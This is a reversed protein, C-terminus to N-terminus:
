PTQAIVAKRRRRRRRVGQAHGATRSQDKASAEKGEPMVPQEEIFREWWRFLDPEKGGTEATFRLYALAEPFSARAMFSHPNKGPTKRFRSQLLLIERIQIGVKNPILVTPALRGLFGALAMDLAQQRPLGNGCHQEGMEELYEGFILSLLFHPSVKEGKGVLSDIWDLAQSIRTHPFGDSERDLWLSFDPFLAQFLGCRRMTQYCKEGEGSLFLKLVEEYLRPPTARTITHGLEVIANWTADDLNFGLVSAFRIARLMRVPDETFREAPNGITRIASHRIDRVGGTYDIITFTGIDYFLANVTFDRRSANQEPTGFINDRLLVGEESKLHRPSRTPSKVQARESEPDGPHLTEPATEDDHEARFTAVEIIEDNFHLHALRFRRGVLRCNRFMRKVQGPTADTVVDFDKPERGLLIDRVCGGVLYAMFGQTKLRYLVRVANPSLNKRSINHDSRPIILPSKTDMTKVNGCGQLFLLVMFPYQTKQGTDHICNDNKDMICDHFLQSFLHFFLQLDQRLKDLQKAPYFM